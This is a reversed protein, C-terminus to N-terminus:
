FFRATTPDVVLLAAVAVEAPLSVSVREDREQPTSHHKTAVCDTSLSM